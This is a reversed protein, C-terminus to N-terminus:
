IRKWEEFERDLHRKLEAFKNGFNKGCRWCVLDEALYNGAHSIRRRMNAEGLPFEELRIFFPTSFSNYHTRNKLRDSHRDVSIVHIHLHNM